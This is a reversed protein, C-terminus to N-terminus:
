WTIVKEVIRRQEEVTKRLYIRTTEISSHGLLDALLAVDGTKELFKKAFLHRFAHPHVKSPDIGYKRALRGIQLSVGRTTIQGSFRNRFLPGEERNERRMWRLLEDRLSERLFVRRCKGGKGFIDIYGLYVERAEIEVLEGVRIGTTSLVSVIFYWQLDSERSLCKKFYNYTEYDLTDGLFSNQQIRVGQLPLDDRGIFKLYRNMARIRQNVTSPSYNDILYHKYNLLNDQSVIQFRSFYDNIAYCYARITNESLQAKILFNNFQQNYM